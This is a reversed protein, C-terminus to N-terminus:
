AALSYNINGSHSIWTSLLESNFITKNSEFLPKNDDYGIKFIIDKVKCIDGESVFIIDYDINRSEFSNCFELERKAYEENNYESFPEVEVIYTTNSSGYGCKFKLAPYENYMEILFSRIENLREDM